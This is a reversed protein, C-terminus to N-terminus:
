KYPKMGDPDVILSLIGAQVRAVGFHQMEQDERLTTDLGNCRHM